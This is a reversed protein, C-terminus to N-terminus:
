IRFDFKKQKNHLFEVEIVKTCMSRAFATLKQQLNYKEELIESECDYIPAFNYKERIKQVKADTEKQMQIATLADNETLVYAEHPNAFFDYVPLSSENKSQLSATTMIAPVQKQPESETSIMTKSSNKKEELTVAIISAAIGADKGVIKVTKGFSIPSINM